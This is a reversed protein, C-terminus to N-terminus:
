EFLFTIKLICKQWQLSRNTQVCSCPQLNSTCKTEKLILLSDTMWQTRARFYWLLTIEETNANSITDFAKSLDIFTAGALLGKDVQIKISDLLQTTTLNTSRKQHYGFQRDTSLNEDVVAKELIMLLVPIFSIPRYNAPDTPTGKKLVVKANKWSSLVITSNLLLNIMYVYCM